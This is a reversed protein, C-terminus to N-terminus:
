LLPDFDDEEHDFNIDAVKGDPALFKTNEVFMDVDVNGDIVYEVARRMCEIIHDDKDIPKDSRKHTDRSRMQDPYRYNRMEYRLRRLNEFIVLREKAFEIRVKRNGGTMDKSGKDFYLGFDEFLSATTRTNFGRQSENWMSPDGLRVDAEVGLRLETMKINDSLEEITGPQFLEAVVYMKLEDKERRVWLWCVGHPTSDHPDVANILIGSNDIDFPKTTHPPRDKYERFVFGGRATFEGEIRIAVEEDDLCMDRIMEVAERTNIPNEYSAMKVCFYQPLRLLEPNIM